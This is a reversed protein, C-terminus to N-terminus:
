SPGKCLQFLPSFGRTANYASERLVPLKCLSHSHAWQDDAAGDSSSDCLGIDRPEENVLLRVYLHPSQAPDSFPPPASMIALGMLFQLLKALSKFKLIPLPNSRILSQTCLTPIVNPLHCNDWM